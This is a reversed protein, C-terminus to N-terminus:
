YLLNFSEFLECLSRNDCCNDLDYIHLIRISLSPIIPTRKSPIRIRGWPGLHFTKIIENMLSSMLMVFTNKSDPAQMLNMLSRDAM